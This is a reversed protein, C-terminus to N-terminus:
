SKGTRGILLFMVSIMVAALAFASVLPPLFSVGRTLMALGQPILTILMLLGSILMEVLKFLLVIFDIVQKFFNFM